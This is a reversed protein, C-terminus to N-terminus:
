ATASGARAARQDLGLDAHSCRGWYDCPRGPHHTGTCPEAPPRDDGYQDLLRALRRAARYTTASM